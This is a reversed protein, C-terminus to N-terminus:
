NGYRQSQNVGCLPDGSTVKRGSPGRTKEGLLDYALVYLMRAENISEQSYQRFLMDGWDTLNDIYAMVIAKKIPRKVFAPSRTPILPIM